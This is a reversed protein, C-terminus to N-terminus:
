ENHQKHKGNGSSINADVGETNLMGKSMTINTNTIGPLGNANVGESQLGLLNSTTAVTNSMRWYVNLNVGERDLGVECTGAATNANKAVGECKRGKGEM